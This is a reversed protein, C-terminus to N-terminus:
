PHGEEASIRQYCLMWQNSTEPGVARRSVLRLPRGALRREAEAAGDNRYHEFRNAPAAEARAAHARGRVLGFAVNDVVLLSGGPRLRALARDLVKGPDVLHNWSRLVLVHDVEGVDDPLAEAPAAIFRGFPYRSSLVALRGEDPDLGVYDIAGARAQEALVDLYPGEGCGLDLVRGRLARLRDLVLADDRTFVDERVPEWCGTCEDRRPCAGCEASIRLKRLDKAFDDPALKSSIDVYLQGAGEKTALLEADAFDRTGTRFLRMRDKLRLFLTRGRDYPRVGDRRVPCPAGPPRVLDREPVFHFSNARPLDHVPRLAGDGRAEHYGRYLGPCAGRLSCDECKETHIKAVDDVPVFDDEDTEIMSAFRHTKLDDYLHELGPLLCFPIGDHAFRLTGPEAREMGYAIADKVAAACAAVEPCIVDYARDAAGKPQTMSFKLCLDRLPLLRDVLGRLHKVNATTVVCNATLDPVRGALNQLAAVAKQFTDARVVSNHVKAAGGHISMYVYRLRCEAILEDVVHPYSLLLGNTVLGFDLGLAAVRRAWRLLEPRITPEGGSLVVMSYGLRRAREIKWDVRETSDNMQRMDATHCFTCNENCAYGVKILAKM